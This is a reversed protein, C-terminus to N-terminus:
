KLNKLFLKEYSPHCFNVIHKHCTIEGTKKSAQLFVRNVIKAANARTWVYEDLAFATNNRRQGHFDLCYKPGSNNYLDVLTHFSIIGIGKHESYFNSPSFLMGYFGLEEGFRLLSEIQLYKTDKIEEPLLIKAPDTM